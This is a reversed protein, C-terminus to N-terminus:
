DRAMHSVKKCSTCKITCPGEHYLRCKNCYSANGAYGRKENNGVTVAQAVNQRKFPPDTGKVCLNWLKNELKLIENRPCYVDIMLKMFDKWSMEYAEDIVITRAVPANRKADRNGGNQNGDGNNNGHNGNGESRNDNDDGDQSQNEDILGANRNAEQAALAEELADRLSMNSGKLAVVRELLSSRESDAILNRGEQERQRSEMDYIRRGANALFNLFFERKMPDKLVTMRFCRLDDYEAILKEEVVSERGTRKIQVHKTSTKTIKKSQKSGRTQNMRLVNEGRVENLLSTFFPDDQDELNVVPTSYQFEAHLGDGARTDEDEANVHYTDNFASANVSPGVVDVGRKSTFLSTENKDRHSSDM